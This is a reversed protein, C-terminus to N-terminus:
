QYRRNALVCGLCWLFLTLAYMGEWGLGGAFRSRQLLGNGALLSLATEVFITGTTAFFWAEHQIRRQLEDLTRVWRAIARVYLLSPVLPALTIAARLLTALNPTRLYWHGFASTLIAVAAWANLKFAAGYSVRVGDPLLTENM